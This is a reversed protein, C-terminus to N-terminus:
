KLIDIKFVNFKYTELLLYQFRNLFIRNGNKKRYELAATGEVWFIAFVAGTGKPEECFYAM